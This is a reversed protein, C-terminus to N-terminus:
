PLVPRISLGCFRNGANFGLMEVGISTERFILDVAQINNDNYIANTWYYGCDGVNKFTSDEKAFGALPMLIYKGNLSTFRVTRTDELTIICKTILEKFDEQTPMRWDGGWNVHAADNSLSLTTPNEKYSYNEITYSDKKSTEGWAFYYGLEKPTSAGVNMTAWKVSLGLDVFEHGNADSVKPENSNKECSSMFFIAMCAVIVVYFNRKM